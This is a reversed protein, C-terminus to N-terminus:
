SSLLRVPFEARGWLVVRDGEKAMTVFAHKQDLLNHHSKNYQGASRTLVDGRPKHEGHINYQIKTRSEPVERGNRLLSLEFWSYSADYTGTMDDALYLRTSLPGYRLSVMILLTIAGGKIGRSHRCWLRASGLGRRVRAVM